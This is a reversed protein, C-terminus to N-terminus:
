PRGLVGAGAGLAALGLPIVCCSSAVAAGLGVILGLTAFWQPATPAAPPAVAHMTKQTADNITMARGEKMTLSDHMRYRSRTCSFFGHLGQRDPPERRRGPDIKLRHAIVLADAEHRRGRPSRASMASIFRRVNSPEGKDAAGALKSEADLINASQESERLRRTRGAGLHLLYGLCVKIIHSRFEGVEGLELMNEGLRDSTTRGAGEHGTRSM